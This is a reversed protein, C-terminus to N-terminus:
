YRVSLVIGYTRPDGVSIYGRSHYSQKAAYDALNKIYGSVRLKGEPSDYTASLDINYYAEQYNYPYDSDAWTLRYGTKYNVNIDTEFAGGNWLSFIHRYDANITWEPSHTMPKGAYDADEMPSIEIDYIEGPMGEGGTREWEYYYDFYLDKWESKLYSASLDLTDKPTLIASAQIDVGMMHGAGWTQSNPDRDTYESTPNELDTGYYGTKTERVFYNKYDYFFAAGNVQLKNNLFRNKSGLTYAKLEESPPEATEESVDGLYGQARYSTSWDAYIMSDESLDYEVGIKYDPDSANSSYNVIDERFGEFQAMVEYRYVDIDDDSVRYGATARFRDTIPYTINAFIAKSKEEMSGFKLEGNPEGDEYTLQDLEDTSNYYNLGVLWTFFSDSSSSMRLEVGKEDGSSNTKTTGLESDYEEMYGENTSYSPILSITGILADLDMRANVKKSTKKSPASIDEDTRWPDDLDDQDIFEDVTGFYHATNKTLEGTLVFSLKDNPQFLARIRASKSDEDDGGNSLYGDHTSTSFAARLATKDGLPANLVGEMHLTEYNGYEISGSVEYVDLKPSATIVNVVGGPSNSAYMTSQPGYLVEVRELDFLGFGTDKRNSYVGDMNLAVSPMSVSQGGAYAESDDGMGRLSIRVGDSTIGVVLSPINSLIENLDNKGTMSLDEASIIEMAIPVKQQNEERKQATVTIEELTFEYDGSDQALIMPASSYIFIFGLAFIIIEMFGKRM